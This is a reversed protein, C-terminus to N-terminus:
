SLHRLVERLVAELREATKAPLKALAASYEGARTKMLRDILVNAKATTAIKKKRRDASDEVRTVLRVRVLRDVNQSVAPMSLNLKAALDSASSPGSERLRTLLLVQQLTVEADAMSRLTDGRGHSVKNVLESLLAGSDM